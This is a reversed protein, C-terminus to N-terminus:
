SVSVDDYLTYTPDVAYDDDHDLLTLTYGHGATLAVPTSQVWTHNNTCTNALITTTTGTTNDRLSANAWDYYVTDTCVVEYWFSLQGGNATITQSITSSGAYPSSSGVMASHSGSHATSSVATAGASSWGSLTGTEFGGNAIPNPATLFTYLLTDTDYVDSAGLAFLHSGDPTFALGHPLINATGNSNSTSANFTAGTSGLHFASVDPSSYGNDLAGAFLNSGSGSMAAASPYPNGPYVVGDAKLTSASLEEFSYHAYGSSDQWVGAAPVVRTGDASVSLGEINEQDTFTNAVSVSPTGTSVNLRYVSGPSLGDESVFLASAAGPSTALDPDYYSTPFVHVAKTSVNVSALNGWGGSPWTGVWLLNGTWALTTPASLGKAVVATSSLSSLSIQSVSGAATDAVYLYGGAIVMGSAGSQSGITKVLSGDYRLVLVQNTKPASVFIHSNTADVAISGGGIAGLNIGSSATLAMPAAAHAFAATAILAGAAAVGARRLLSRAPIGSM